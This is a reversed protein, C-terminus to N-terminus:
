QGASVEQRSLGNAGRVEASTMGPVIGRVALKSVLHGLVGLSREMQADWPHGCNIRMFNRYGGTPSFMPGPAIDIGAAVALENLEVSDVGPPFECWLLFGGQPRSLRTGEPFLHGIAERMQEVQRRCTERLGRLHREYGGSQLFEAIALGPLLPGALTQVKKLAHARQHWRGAALYGVRYGPALTKSFSGCHLVGGDQSYSKLWRPRPGQHQLDGYVDDEILPVGRAELFRVLDRKRSDPMLSGMPNNFNAVVICAAIKTRRVTAEVADVDIGHASDNQIPIAKLRLQRLQRIFGFYTPTEIIVTDGPECTARLALNLAETAGLTVIFDDPVLACGASLARRSIERRLQFSGPAHDYNVSARGLRRAIASQIRMLKLGPLLEPSPLAAGFPTLDLNNNDMLWDFVDTCALDSSKLSPRATVPEPIEVTQRACVYYGSKPRAEVLGRNELVAYAHLATPVSVRQEQSFQRVSPIRDGPRLVRRSILRQVVDALRLYVPGFSPPPSM